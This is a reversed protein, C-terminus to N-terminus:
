EFYENAAIYEWDTSWLDEHKTVEDVTEPAEHMPGKKVKRAQAIHLISGSMVMVKGDPWAKRRILNTSTKGSDLTMIPNEKIKLVAQVYTM